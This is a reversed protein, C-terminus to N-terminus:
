CCSSLMSRRLCTTRLDMWSRFAREMSPQECLNVTRWVSPARRPGFVPESVELTWVYNEIGQSRWADAREVYEGLSSCGWMLAACLMASVVVRMSCRRSSYIRSTGGPKGLNPFTGRRSGVLAEQHTARHLGAPGGAALAPDPHVCGLLRRLGGPSPWPLRLCRSRGGPRCSVM